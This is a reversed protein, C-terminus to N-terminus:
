RHYPEGRVITCARYLQEALVLRAMRHPLTMRSLRWTEHARARVSPALGNAGGILFAVGGRGELAWGELRRALGVSDLERGREDLAIVLDGDGIAREFREAEAQQVREVPVSGRAPEEKLEVLEVPYYRGARELYEGAALVLPDRRDRGVAIVRLKV